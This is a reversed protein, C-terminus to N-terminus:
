QSNKELGAEFIQQCLYGVVYRRATKLEVDGNTALDHVAEEIVRWLPSHEFQSYPHTEEPNERNM